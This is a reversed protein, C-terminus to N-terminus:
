LLGKNELEKRVESAELGLILCIGEFSNFGKDSSKFWAQAQSKWHLEQEIERKQYVTLEERAEPPSFHLDEIARELVAAWLKLYLRIERRM